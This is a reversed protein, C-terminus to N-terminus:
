QISKHIKRKVALLVRWPYFLSILSFVRSLLLPRKLEKTTLIWDADRLTLMKTLGGAIKINQNWEPGGVRKKEGFRSHSYDHNQHVVTSFETIDVVKM